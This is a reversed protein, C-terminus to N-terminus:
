GSATDYRDTNIRAGIATAIRRAQEPRLPYSGLGDPDRHPVGAVERAFHDKARPIEHAFTLVDTRRDYGTPQHTASM